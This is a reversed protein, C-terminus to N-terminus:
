IKIIRASRLENDAALKIANAGTHSRVSVREAGAASGLRSPACGALIRKWGNRTVVADALVGQLEAQDVRHDM